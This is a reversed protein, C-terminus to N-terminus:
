DRNGGGVLYEAIAAAREEDKRYAIEVLELSVGDPDAFYCWRWGALPGDDVINVDSYFTVGKAELERKKAHIDDVLFAAHAAGLANNPPVVRNPSPPTKYGLLEMQSDGIWFSVQRLSAGQVGVGKALAEGSFVSTPENAFELGLVEHYFKISRELDSVTIGIHHMGKYM